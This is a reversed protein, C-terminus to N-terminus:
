SSVQLSQGVPRAVHFFFKRHSNRFDNSNMKYPVHIYTGFQMATTLHNWGPNNGANWSCLFVTDLPLFPFLSFFNSLVNRELGEGRRRWSNWSITAELYLPRRNTYCVQGRSGQLLVDKVHYVWSFCFGSVLAFLLCLCIGVPLGPHYGRNRHAQTGTQTNGM